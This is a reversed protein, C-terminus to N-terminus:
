VLCLCKCVRVIQGAPVCFVCCVRQFLVCLFVIVYLFAAAVCCVFFCLFVSVVLQRVVCLCM